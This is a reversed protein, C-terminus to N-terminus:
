EVEGDGLVAGETGPLHKIPAPRMLKQRRSAPRAADLADPRAEIHV